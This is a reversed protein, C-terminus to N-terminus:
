SSFFKKTTILLLFSFITFLFFKVYYFFHLESYKSLFFSYFVTFFLSLFFILNYNKYYNFLVIKHCNLRKLYVTFFKYSIYFLVCGFIGFFKIFFPMLIILYLNTFISIRLIIKLKKKVILYNQLVFDQMSIIGVLFWFPVYLASELFKGHTLLALVDHSFLNVLVCLYFFLYNIEILKSEIFNIKYSSYRKFINILDSIFNKQLGKFFLLFSYLFLKSNSYIAVQRINLFYGISFKELFDSATFIIDPLIIKKSIKFILKLYKYEFKYKIKKFFYFFEILLGITATCFTSIFISFIGLKLTSFFFFASCLNTIIRIFDVYFLIKFKKLLQGYLSNLQSLKLFSSSILTLVICWIYTPNIIVLFFFNLMSFIIILLCVLSIKAFIESIYLQFIFIKNKKKISKIYFDQFILEANITFVSSLFNAFALILAAIGIDHADLFYTVIPLQILFYTVHKAYGPLILYIYNKLYKIKM